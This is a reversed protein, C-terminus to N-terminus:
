GVICLSAGGAAPFPRRPRNGFLMAKMLAQPKGNGAFFGSVHHSIRSLTALTDLQNM